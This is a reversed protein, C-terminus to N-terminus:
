MDADVEAGEEAEADQEALLRMAERAIQVEEMMVEEAMECLEELRGEAMTSGGMPHPARGLSGVRGDPAVLRALYEAEEKLARRIQDRISGEGPAEQQAEIIAVEFHVWKFLGRPSRDIIAPTRRPSPFTLRTTDGRLTILSTAEWQISTSRPVVDWVAQPGPVTHTTFAAPVDLLFGLHIETGLAQLRKVAPVLSYSAPVSTRIEFRRVPRLGQKAREELIDAVIDLDDGTWPRLMLMRIKDVPELMYPSIRQRLAAARGHVPIERTSPMRIGLNYTVISDPTTWEWGPKVPSPDDPMYVISADVTFTSSDSPTRKMSGSQWLISKVNPLEAFLALADPLTSTNIFPTSNHLLLWQISDKYM